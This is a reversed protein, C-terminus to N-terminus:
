KGRERNVEAVRAAREANRTNNESEPRGSKIIITPKSASNSELGYLAKLDVVTKHPSKEIWRSLDANKSLSEKAIDKETQGLKDFAKIFGDVNNKKSVENMLSAVNASSLTPISQLVAKQTAANAAAAKADDKELLPVGDARAKDRVKQLAEPSLFTSALTEPDSSVIKKVETAVKEEREPNNEPLAIAEQLGIGTKTRLKEFSESNEYRKAEDKYTKALFPSVRTDGDWKKDAIYNLLAQRKAGDGTALTSQLQGMAREKGMGKFEEAFSEAGGKDALKARQDALLRTIPNSSDYMATTKARQEPTNYHRSVQKQVGRSTRKKTAAWTKNSLSKAGSVVTGAFKVGMSDAAIMGGIILSALTIEQLFETIIPTIGEGFFQMIANYITNSSTLYNGTNFVDSNSTGAITALALYLFFMFIPAFFTWQIFKNWWQKNLHSFSPFVWSAWAFPLLIALIAIYVYRIMLMIIFALLVLIVILFDLIIFCLSFIPVMAAGITGLLTSNTAMVGTGVSGLAGSNQATSEANFNDFWSGDHVFKQVMATAFGTYGTDAPNISNLFYQTTANSFAFIPAIIVLGFNVLIAMVVLKWLMKKISYSEIRLITALAIVIIGLVFALNAISLSISFGTQVFSTQLIGANINLVVSVYWAEISIFVGFIWSLVFAVGLAVTSIVTYAIGSIIDAHTYQASGLFLLLAAAIAKCIIKGRVRLRDKLFKILKM